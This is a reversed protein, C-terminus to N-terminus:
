IDSNVTKLKDRLMIKFPESLHNHLKKCYPCIIDKDNSLVPQDEKGCNKCKVAFTVTKKPKYKKSMKLQHKVFQTVQLEGDCVSCYVKDNTPDIYPQMLKGCSRNACVITFSM